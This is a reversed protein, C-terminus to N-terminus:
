LVISMGATKLTMRKIYAFSIYRNDNKEEKKKKPKKHTPTHTTPKKPKKTKEKSTIFEAISALYDVQFVKASKALWM